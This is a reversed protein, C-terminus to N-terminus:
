KKNDAGRLNHHAPIKSNIKFDNYLYNDTSICVVALLIRHFTNIREEQLYNMLNQGFIIGLHLIGNIAYYEKLNTIL